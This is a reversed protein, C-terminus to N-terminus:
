TCSSSGSRRCCRKRWTRSRHARLGQAVWSSHTTMFCTRSSSSRSRRGAAGPGGAVGTTTRPRASRTGTSARTASSSRTRPRSCRTCWTARSAGLDARLVLDPGGHAGGGESGGRAPAHRRHRRATEARPRAGRLAVATGVLVVRRPGRPRRPNWLLLRKVRTVAKNLGASCGHIRAAHGRLRM